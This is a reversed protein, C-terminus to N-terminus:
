IMRKLRLFDYLDSLLLYRKEIDSFYEVTAEDKRSYLGLDRVFEKPMSLKEERMDSFMKATEEFISSIENEDSESRYKLFHPYAAVRSIRKFSNQM